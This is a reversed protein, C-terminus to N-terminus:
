AFQETNGLYEEFFHSFPVIIEEYFSRREFVKRLILTFYSSFTTVYAPLLPELIRELFLSQLM